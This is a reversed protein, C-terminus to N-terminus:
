SSSCGKRKHCKNYNGESIGQTNGTPAGARREAKPRAKEEDMNCVAIDFSCFYYFCFRVKKTKPLMVKM